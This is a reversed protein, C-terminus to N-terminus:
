REKTKENQNDRELLEGVFSQHCKDIIELDIIRNKLDSNEKILNDIESRLNKIIERYYEIKKVYSYEKESM